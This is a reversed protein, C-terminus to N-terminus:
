NLQRTLGNQFMNGSSRGFLLYDVKEVVPMPEEYRIPDVVEDVESEDHYMEAGGRMFLLIRAILEHLRCFVKAPRAYV